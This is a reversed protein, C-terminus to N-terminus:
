SGGFQIPRLCATSSHTGLNRMTGPVVIQDVSPHAHAERSCRNGDKDWKYVAGVQELQAEIGQRDAEGRLRDDDVIGALFQRRLKVM